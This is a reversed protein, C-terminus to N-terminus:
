FNGSTYQINSLDHKSQKPSTRAAMLYGQFKGTSFITSPRLYGAMRQDNGWENFKFEIVMRCDEVSHGETLRANINEIHSVTTHKYKSSCIENFYTLVSIADSNESQIIEKNDSDNDSKSDSKNKNEALKAVKQKSKSANAVKQKGGMSGAAARAECTKQYKEDDRLFQNKFPSFAIKVLSSLELDEGKQHANIAKFLQGAQEDTLDELIDLSDIHILFSKRKGAM